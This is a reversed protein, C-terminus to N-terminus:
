KGQIIRQIYNFDNFKNWYMKIKNQKKSNMIYTDYQKCVYENYFIINRQYYGVVTYM